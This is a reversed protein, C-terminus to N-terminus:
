KTLVKYEWAQLTLELEKKDFSETEGTFYNTFKGKPAETFSVTSVEPTLNLIVLVENKSDLQRSFAYVSKDNSTSFKVFKGGEKGANLAAQSKKLQNLKTYFEVINKNSEWNPPTDKTFFELRRDLGVEQGTYILPMGNLTYTLVAFTNVADGMREYETGDWSNEDHNTIFNMQYVDCPFVSDQIARLKDIDLATKITSENGLLSEHLYTPNKADKGKAIQNMVDKLPWNYVMNFANVTLEAKEAEALMFVPKINDLRKRAAEWFDLPVLFAVDCRYGDVDYEKVWFELADTMAERVEDKTYDLEYVDTWDYPAVFNGVSDRKYWEPNSNIWVNDCGTHNAVWDLIVKMGLSHAEDVIAKFDNLTGFEPNVDKYNQVAYYSGLEGKRNVKSVPHIPMLWLVDVGLAKLRPLHQQFAKFTGEETFQRINVEYIVANRSWDPHSINTCLENDEVNTKNSCSM